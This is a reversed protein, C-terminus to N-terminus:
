MEEGNITGDSISDPSLKAFKVLPSKKVSFFGDPIIDFSMWFIKRFKTLLLKLNILKLKTIIIHVSFCKLSIKLVAIYIIYIQIDM